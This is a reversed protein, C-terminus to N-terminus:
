ATTPTEELYEDKVRVVHYEGDFEEENFLEAEEEHEFVPTEIEIEAKPMDTNLFDVNTAEPHIVVYHMDPLIITGDIYTKVM